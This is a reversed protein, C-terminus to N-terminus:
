RKSRKVIVMRIRNIIYWFFGIGSVSMAIYWEKESPSVGGWYMYAFGAVFLLVALAAQNNISQVKLFHKHRKKREEDDQTMGSTSFGCHPCSEARSSIKKNCSVCNVISM